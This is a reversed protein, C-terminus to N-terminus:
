SYSSVFTTIVFTTIRIHHYSHPSVFQVFVCVQGTQFLAPLLVVADTNNYNNNNLPLTASSVPNTATGASSSSSSSSSDRLLPVILYSLTKTQADSLVDEQRMSAIISNWLKAFPLPDGLLPVRRRMIKRVRKHLTNQM